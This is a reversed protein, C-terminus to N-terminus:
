GNPRPLESHYKVQRINNYSTASTTVRYAAGDNGHYPVHDHLMM